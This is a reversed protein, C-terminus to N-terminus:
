LTACLGIVAYGYAFNSKNDFSNGQIIDALAKEPTIALGDVEFDIYNQFIENEEVDKMLTENKSNFANLIQDTKIGYSFICYGM